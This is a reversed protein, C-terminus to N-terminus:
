PTAHVEAEAEAPLGQCSRRPGPARGFPVRTTLVTMPRPSVWGIPAVPVTM